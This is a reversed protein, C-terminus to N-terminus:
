QGEALPAPLWKTGLKRQQAILSETKVAAQQAKARESDSMRSDQSEDLLLSHAEGELLILQQLQTKAETCFFSFHESFCSNRDSLYRSLHM